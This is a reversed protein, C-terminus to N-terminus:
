KELQRRSDCQEELSSVGTMVKISYCEVTLWSEAAKEEVGHARPIHRHLM